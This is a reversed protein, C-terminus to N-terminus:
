VFRERGHYYRVSIKHCDSEPVLYLWNMMPTDTANRPLMCQRLSLKPNELENSNNNM